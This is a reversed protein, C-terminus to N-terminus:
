FLILGDMEICICGTLTIPKDILRLKDGVQRMAFAPSLTPSLDIHQRLLFAAVMKPILITASM